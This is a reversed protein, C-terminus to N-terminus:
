DNQTVVKAGCISRYCDKQHVGKEGCNACYRDRDAMRSGCASCKAPMRIYIEDMTPVANCTRVDRAHGILVKCAEIAPPEKRLVYRELDNAAQEVSWTM